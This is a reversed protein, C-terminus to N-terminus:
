YSHDIRKDFRARLKKNYLYMHLIRDVTADIMYIPDVYDETSAPNHFSMSRWVKFAVKQTLWTIYLRKFISM